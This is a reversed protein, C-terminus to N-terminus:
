LSAMKLDCLYQAIEPKREVLKKRASLEAITTQLVVLKQPDAAKDLRAADEDMSVLIDEIESIPPSPLEPLTITARSQFASEMSMKRALAKEVSAKLLDACSKNRTAIEDLADKYSALIDFDLDALQRAATTLDATVTDLRKKTTNEMFSKFRNFREKADQSLPQMCLVCLSGPGTFPFDKDQYAVMTSYQQAAEYLLRWENDGVGSLPEERLSPSQQSAIAFARQAANAECMKKEITAAAETSLAAEMTELAAKLSAVRTRLNRLRLAQQSPDEATVKAVDRKLEQLTTEDKSTWRTAQELAEPTTNTNLSALFKGAQTTPPIDESPSLAPQPQEKKLITKFKQLLSALEQFVSAGYPLYVAENDEDIIIRACKSDFV